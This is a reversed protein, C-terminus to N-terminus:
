EPVTIIGREIQTRLEPASREALRTLFASRESATLARPAATQDVSTVPQLTYTVADDDLAVDVMMGNRVENDFYQDFIFNGLSYFIPRGQYWGIDQVVHPHHGVVADIGAEILAEALAKQRADHTMKYETGWHLYAIQIDSEKSMQKVLPTIVEPKLTPDTAHVALVGVIGNRLPIYTLSDSDVREPHGFVTFAHLNERTEAFGTAGFDYTHNNALSLHTFGFTRLATLHQKDVSFQLTFDATQRHQDPVTAEFNALWVTDAPAELRHYPYASGHKTLLTEVHRALMLDGVFRLKQDTVEPEPEPELFARTVGLFINDAQYVAKLMPGPSAAFIALLLLAMLWVSKPM